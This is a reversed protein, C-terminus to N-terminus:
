QDIALRERAQKATLNHKHAYELVEDHTLVKKKVERKPAKLSKNDYIKKEM